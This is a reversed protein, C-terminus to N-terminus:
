QLQSQSCPLTRLRENALTTKKMKLYACYRDLIDSVMISSKARNVKSACRARTTQSYSICLTAPKLANLAARLRPQGHLHGAPGHALGAMLGDLVAHVAIARLSLSDM